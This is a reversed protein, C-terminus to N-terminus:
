VRVQEQVESLRGHGQELMKDLDIHGQERTESVDIIWGQIEHGVVKFVQSFLL